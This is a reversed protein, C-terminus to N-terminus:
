NVCASIYSNRRAIDGRAAQYADRDAALAAERQRTAEIDAAQQTL